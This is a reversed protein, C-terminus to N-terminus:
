AAVAHWGKEDAEVGLRFLVASEEDIAKLMELSYDQVPVQNVIMLRLLRDAAAGIGLNSNEWRSVTEPTVGMHAAFDVGSWGLWKRLFRIEAPTLPAPKTVVAGAITRHLEEIRPIEVEFAGCKPCRAVLVGVLTVNPLGSATYHFNERVTTTPGGCEECTM